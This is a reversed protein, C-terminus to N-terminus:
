PTFLYGAASTDLTPGLTTTTTYHNLPTTVARPIKSVYVNIMIICIIYRYLFYSQGYVPYIIPTTPVYQYIHLLLAHCM